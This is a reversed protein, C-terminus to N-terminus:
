TSLIFSLWTLHKSQISEQLVIHLKFSHWLNFRCYSNSNKHVSNDYWVSIFYHCCQNWVQHLCQPKITTEVNYHSTDSNDVAWLTMKLKVVTLSHHDMVQSYGGRLVTEVSVSYVQLVGFIDANMMCGQSTTIGWDKSYIEIWSPDLSYEHFEFTKNQLAKCCLCM